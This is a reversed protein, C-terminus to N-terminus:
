CSAAFARTLGSRAAEGRVAGLLFVPDHGLFARLTVLATFALGAFGMGVVWAPPGSRGRRLLITGLLGAGVSVVLIALDVM